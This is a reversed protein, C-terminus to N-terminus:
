MYDYRSRESHFIPDMFGKVCGKHRLSGLGPSEVSSKNVAGTIGGESMSCPSATVQVGSEPAIDPCEDM